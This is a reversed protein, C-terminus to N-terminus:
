EAGPATPWDLRRHRGAKTDPLSARSGGLTLATKHKLPIQASRVRKALHEGKKQVGGEGEPTLRPAAVGCHM